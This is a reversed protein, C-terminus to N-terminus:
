KVRYDAVTTSLVENVTYEVRHFRGVPVNKLYQCLPTGEHPIVQPMSVPRFEGWAMDPTANGHFVARCGGPYSM